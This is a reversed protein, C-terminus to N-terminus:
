LKQPRIKQILIFDERNFIKLVIVLFLYVMVYVPILLLSRELLIVVAMGVSALIIKPLSSFFDLKFIAKRIYLYGLLLGTTENALTAIAAGMIGIRPILILNLSVNVILNVMALYTNIQPKKSANIITATIASNFLPLLALTLIQFVPISSGFSSGYLWLIGNPALLFGGVILPFAILNLLKMAQLSSQLVLDPAEELYRSIPPLIVSSVIGPIAVLIEMIRYSASYFGVAAIGLFREILIVDIRFYIVSIITMLAFPYAQKFILIVDQLSLHPVLRFHLTKKVYIAFLLARFLGLLLLLYGLVVIGYNLLILIGGGIGYLLSAAVNVVGEFTMKEKVRYVLVWQTYYVSILSSLNSLHFLIRITPDSIFNQAYVFVGIALIFNIFFRLFFIKSQFKELDGDKDKSAQRVFYTTLGFTSITTLIAMVSNVYSFRGLDESGLRRAVLITIFASSFRSFLDASYLVASNLFVRKAISMRFIIGFIYFDECSAGDQANIKIKEMKDTINM